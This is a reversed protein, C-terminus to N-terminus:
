NGAAAPVGAFDERIRRVIAPDVVRTETKAPDKVSSLVISVAGCDPGIAAPDFAYFGEEIAETETVRARIRFPHIPTVDKGGCVLRMRSFGPRLRKIPPIQAGQTSAAGRAVKTWFGEVLRPTVRIFLLPPAEIVYDSWQEFETAVRRGNLEDARAGTWDRKGAASAVLAPTLFTVDFDSSSLQYGTVSFPRGAAGANAAAASMRRTPEVPLRAADPPATADLKARASTLAECVDPAGVVRVDMARRADGETPSSLGVARGDDAFIPGGATGASVVLWSNIDSSGFLPVTIVYREEDTAARGAAECALPVPRIGAIVSPHIRVVAVDRSADAVIVTGMVKVAQSVQVEVARADGIARLSTAVLGQEDALFGAAHALPTWLGFASAQWTSLISATRLVPANPATAADRLVDATAAGVTANAATLELTADRGAVIDLIQIWEYTRGDLIFPHDSEVTYNGPRLSVQAIGEPSTVVRRPPATSPNASILLAHRAVPMLQQDAALVSVKLHLVPLEQASAGSWIALAVLVSVLVRGM